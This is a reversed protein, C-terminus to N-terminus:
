EAESALQSCLVGTGLDEVLPLNLEGFAVAVSSFLPPYEILVAGDIVGTGIFTQAAFTYVVALTEFHLLTSIVDVLFPLEVM